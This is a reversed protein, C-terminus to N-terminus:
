FSYKESEHPITLSFDRGPYLFLVLITRLSNMTRNLSFKM